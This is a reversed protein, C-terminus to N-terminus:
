GKPLVKGYLIMAFIVAFGCMISPLGHAASEWFLWILTAPVTFSAIGAVYWRLSTRLWKIRTRKAISLSWVSAVILWFYYYIFYAGGFGPSLEFIVYNGGCIQNQLADSGLFIAIWAFMTAYAAIILRTQKSKSLAQVLHVGLVPLMTIAIFGVRAMANPHLGFLGECIGYEMAQFTALNLLILMVLVTSLSKKKRILLTAFLAMEIVVTMAMVFPNFCLFNEHKYKQLM